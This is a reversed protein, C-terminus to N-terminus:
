DFVCTKTRGNPVCVYVGFTEACFPSIWLKSCSASVWLVVLSDLRLATSTHAPFALEHTYEHTHTCIHTNTCVRAHAHTSTHTRARSHTHIHSYAHTHTHTRTLKHIHTHTYTHIHTHLPCTNRRYKAHVWRMLNCWIVDHWAWAASRWM